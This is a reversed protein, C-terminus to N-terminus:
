STHSPFSYDVPLLVSSHSNYNQAPHFLSTATDLSPSNPITVSGGLACSRLRWFSSVGCSVLRSFFWAPSRLLRFWAPPPVGPRLRRASLAPPRLWPPGSPPPLLLPGSPRRILPPGSSPPLRLPGSPRLILPPGTSPPLLPPG